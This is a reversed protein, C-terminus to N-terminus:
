LAFLQRGRRGATIRETPIIQEVARKLPVMVEDTDLRYSGSVPTGATIIPPVGSIGFSSMTPTMGLAVSESGYFTHRYEAGLTLNRSV